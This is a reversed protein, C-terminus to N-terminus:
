VNMVVVAAPSLLACPGGLARSAARHEGAHAERCQRRQRPRAHVCLQRPQARQQRQSDQFVRRGERREPAQRRRGGKWRPHVERVPRGDRGRYAHDSVWPRVGADASPEAGRLVSERRGHQEAHQRQEHSARFPGRRERQELLRNSTVSNMYAIAGAGLDVSHGAAMGLQQVAQFNAIPTATASTAWPVGATFTQIAFTDSFGVQTGTPGDMKISFTGTTLLAWITAEIRDFERNILQQDADVVLDAIDIPTGNPAYGARRTLETETIDIYEGFVGPEYTYTKTGVRQVRTPAGDLGRLAQLGYFNDQQSWRVEGANVNRIPMIQLGARGAEGRATLDPEIQSLEYNTPYNFTPM